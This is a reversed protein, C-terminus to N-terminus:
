PWTRKWSLRLMLVHDDTRVQDTPDLAQYSYAMEAGLSSAISWHLGATAAGSDVRYTRDELDTSRLWDARTALSLRRTLALAYGAGLSNTLSSRGLGFAVSFYRRFEVLYSHRGLSGLNASGMLKTSPTNVGARSVWGPGIAVRARSQRGLAREWGVLLTGYRNDSRASETQGYELRLSATEGRRLRRRTEARAGIVSDKQLGSSEFNVRRYGVDGVVTVSRSPHWEAGADAQLSTGYAQGLLVGTETAALLERAFDRQVSASGHVSLRRTFSWIGRPAVGFSYSNLDDFKRYASGGLDGELTFGRRPTGFARVGFVDLRGHIDGGTKVSAGGSGFRPNSEATPEAQVGVM